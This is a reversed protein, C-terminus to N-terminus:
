FKILWLWINVLKDIEKYITSVAIESMDNKSRLDVFFCVMSMALALYQNSHATM